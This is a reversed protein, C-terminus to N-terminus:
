PSATCEVLIKSGQGMAYDRQGRCSRMSSHCALYPRESGLSSSYCWATPYPRCPAFGLKALEGQSRTCDDNGRFCLGEENMAVTCYWGTVTPSIALSGIAQAVTRSPLTLTEPPQLAVPLETWRERPVAIVLFGASLRTIPIQAGPTYTTTTTNGYATTTARDPTIQAWSTSSSQGAIIM